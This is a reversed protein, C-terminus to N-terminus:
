AGDLSHREKMVFYGAPNTLFENYEALRIYHGQEEGAMTDYFNKEVPDDTNQSQEAYYDRTKKELGMAYNLAEQESGSTKITKGSERMADSFIEHAKKVEDLPLQVEPFNAGAIIKDYIKQFIQKHIVEEAAMNKFFTRTLENESKEASKDYFEKG